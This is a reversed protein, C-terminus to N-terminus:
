SVLWEKHGRFRGQKLWKVAVIMDTGPKAAAFTHDDILGEFVFSSSGERLLSDRCFDGTSMKLEAFSFSKLNSSQLIEGESRPTQPVSFSSVKSSTSSFDNGDRSVYKSNSGACTLAYVRRSDITM